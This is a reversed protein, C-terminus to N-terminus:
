GEWTGALWDLPVGLAKAIQVANTLSPERRGTEFHSLHTRDMQPVILEGLEKQTLGRWHRAQRLREAFLKVM